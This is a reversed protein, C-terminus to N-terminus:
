LRHIMPLNFVRMKRHKCINGFPWQVLKFQQDNGHLRIPGVIHHLWLIFSFPKM